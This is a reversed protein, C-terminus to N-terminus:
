IYVFIEFNPCIGFIHVCHWFTFLIMSLHVSYQLIMGKAEGFRSYSIVNCTRLNHGDKQCRSCVILRRVFRNNIRRTKNREHRKKTVPPKIQLTEETVQTLCLNTGFYLCQITILYLHCINWLTSMNKFIHTNVQFCRCVRFHPCINRFNTM